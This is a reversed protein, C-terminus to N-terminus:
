PSCGKLANNVGLILENILVKGDNNADFARCNTVPAGLAINVGLILENIIVDHSGNCDGVCATPPVTGGVTVSGDTFTVNSRSQTATVDCASQDGISLNAGFTPKAADMASFIKLPILDPATPAVNMNLTVLVGSNLRPIQVPGQEPLNKPGYAVVNVFNDLTQGAGTDPCLCHNRGACQANEIVVTFDNANGSGVQFANADLNGATCTFSLPTDTGSGPVGLTFAIAAVDDFGSKDQSDNPGETFTIPINVVGDKAGM